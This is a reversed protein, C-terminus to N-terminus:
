YVDELALEPSTPILSAAAAMLAVEEEEAAEVSGAEAAAAAETVGVQAETGLHPFLVESPCRMVSLPLVQNDLHGTIVASTTTVPPQSVTLQQRLGDASRTRSAPPSSTPPARWASAIGVFDGVLGHRDSPM